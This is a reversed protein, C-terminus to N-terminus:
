GRLEIVNLESDGESAADNLDANIKQIPDVEPKFLISSPSM